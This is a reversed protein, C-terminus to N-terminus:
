KVESIKVDDFWATGSANIIYLRLYAKGKINSNKGSTFEASCKEWPMTGSYWNKPFFHNKDSFVNLCVGSNKGLPKIDETKVYCTLRYKTDPKMEPLLQMISIKGTQNTLKLSQGGNIFTTKDLSFSQGSKIDKTQPGYWKGLMRGQQPATFDGNDLMSIEKVEGFLLSGFNQLDHFGNRLFPSWTYLRIYGNGKDLIRNRNFNAPFGEAKFGPLTKIPIAIEATWRGAGLATKVVAESNWNWNGESNGSGLKENQLDSLSGVANVLLQYYEKRDGSPNLFIEVSSDKWIDKNDNDRKAAVINKIEPEECNFAFYLYNQDKLGYVITKVPLKGPKYPSLFIEASNKWAPDDLKGDVIIKEGAPVDKVNFTLDAIESKKSSYAQATRILGDDMFSKRIFKVRKLAQPDNASQKEALKFQASLFAIEEPSYIKNWLEYESPAICIPGLPTDTQKGAVKKVWLDELREYIKQMTDAAPGFMLRYHEKLLADIDTSNNWAVKSFVYCNLYGFIFKDTDSQLFAGFINPKQRKFYSGICRPTINPIGPLNLGGYKDVYNWLWVKGGTKKVWDIIDKDDKAQLEPLSEKLPGRVAVMVLVNDPIKVNPKMRYPPYGMMTVYGPVGEHKLRNATEVVFQWVFDSTAQDGKSFHKQCEPCSCKYFSDQPMINFYGAQLASPDWCYGFRDTKVGREEATKGSLYAKADQFIEERIGSSLCLQGPHPLAPNNHRQGNSMLAFYEPHSKGFRTLYGLRSLGHCNPIYKTEQRTRYYNLNKEHLGDKPKGSDYWKGSAYSTKRVTYDPCDTIDMTPVTLIQHKPVVTGLEGPFYFRVGAFRELFDYVGFLTGREYLQAWVGSNLAKQPNITQDDRGAIYIRKGISKIIFGDRPLTKTEIGAARSLSNDGVIIAIENGTPKSKLPIKVGSSQQLFNQLEDAAFRATPCSDNPVVIECQAQGGAALQLPKNDNLKVVSEATLNGVFATGIIVIVTAYYVVESRFFNM